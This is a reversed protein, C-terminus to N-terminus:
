TDDHDQYISGYSHTFRSLVILSTVILCQFQSGAQHMLIFINKVM